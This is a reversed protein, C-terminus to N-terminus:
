IAPRGSDDIRYPSRVPPRGSQRSKRALATPGRTTYISESHSVAFRLVVGGTPCAYDPVPSEIGGQRLYMHVFRDHHNKCHAGVDRLLDSITNRAVGAIRSTARMSNGEVFATLVRTQDDLSLCNVPNIYM